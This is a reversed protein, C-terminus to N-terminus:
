KRRRRRRRRRHVPALARTPTLFSLDDVAAANRYRFENLLQSLGIGTEVALQAGKVRRLGHYMSWAFTGAWGPKFDTRALAGGAAYYSM